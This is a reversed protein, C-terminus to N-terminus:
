FRIPGKHFLDSVTDSGLFVPFHILVKVVAGEEESNFSVFCGYFASSREEHLSTQPDLSEGLSGLFPLLWAFVSM